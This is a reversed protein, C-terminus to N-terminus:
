VATQEGPKSMSLGVTPSEAEAGEGTHLGIILPPLFLNHLPQTGEGMESVEWEPCAFSGLGRTPARIHSGESQMERATARVAEERAAWAM